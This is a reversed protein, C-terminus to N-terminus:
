LSDCVGPLCPAKFSLVLKFYAQDPSNTGREPTELHLILWCMVGASVSGQTTPGTQPLGPRSQQGGGEGVGVYWIFWCMGGAFVSGKTIPGTQPLGPKWQQDLGLGGMGRPRVIGCLGVCVGPLCPAKLSLVLKPYAQDPSNTGAEEVVGGEPIEYDQYQNVNTRGPRPDFAPILASFQRKLVYEDDWTKRREGRVEALEDEKFIIM